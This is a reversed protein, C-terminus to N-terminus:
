WFNFLLPLTRIFRVILRTRTIMTAASVRLIVYESHIDTVTTIWFTFRM